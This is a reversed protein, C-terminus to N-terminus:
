GRFSWSALLIKLILLMGSNKAFRKPVRKCLHLVFIFWNLFSSKSNDRIWWLILSNEHFHKNMQNRPTWCIVHAFCFYSCDSFFQCIFFFVCFKPDSSEFRQLLLILNLSIQLSSITSFQYIRYLCFYLNFQFNRFLLFFCRFLSLEVIAIISTCIGCMWRFRLHQFISIQQHSSFRTKERVFNLFKSQHHSRLNIDRNM